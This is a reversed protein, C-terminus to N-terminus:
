FLIKSFIYKNVHYFIIYIFFNNLYIKCFIVFVTTSMKVNNEM